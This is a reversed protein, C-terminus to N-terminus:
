PRPSSAPERINNKYSCTLSKHAWSNKLSSTTPTAAGLSRAHNNYHFDKMTTFALVYLPSEFRLIFEKTNVIAQTKSESRPFIACLFHINQFRYKFHTHKPKRLVEM